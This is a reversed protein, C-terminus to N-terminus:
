RLPHCPLDGVTSRFPCRHPWRVLSLPLWPRDGNAARPWFDLQSSRSAAFSSVSTEPPREKLRLPLLRVESFKVCDSPLNTSRPAASIPFNALSSLGESRPAFRACAHLVSQRQHTPDSNRRGNDVHERFLARPDAWGAHRFRRGVRTRWAGIAAWHNGQGLCDRQEIRSALEFLYRKSGIM